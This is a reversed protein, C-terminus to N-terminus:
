IKNYKLFSNWHSMLSNIFYDIEAITNYFYLSMRLTGSIKLKQMIPQACHHGARIAISNSDLFQAIDHSHINKFYFSITGVRKDLPGVIKIGKIKKLQNLAYNTLKKEYQYINEMGLTQLYNIASNFGIVGAINPTGSEFKHPIKSYTSDLFKVSKIMGGGSEYPPMQELWKEKGYLIGIGTPGCMKHGSFALFDCDLNKIDVQFHPVSQAADILVPINKSHAYQIIKKVPNITGFVNSAHTLAVIGTEPTIIDSLKSFDLVGNELFPIFRLNLKKEKAIIQWPILNSHHEMETLVVNMGEKLFKKGWSRAVLNISQTTGSTFIIENKGSNLFDAINKRTQEYQFTAKAGLKYISRNINANTEQYYQIISNIVQQPKQTTAANDFYM